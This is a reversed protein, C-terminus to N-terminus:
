EKDSKEFFSAHNKIVIDLNHKTKFIQFNRLRRESQVKQSGNMGHQLYCVAPTKITMLPYDAGTVRLSWDWDFYGDVARDFLGLKQHLHRPYVMSSTLITNNERLTEASTPFAFLKKDVERGKQKTVMWGYSHLLAEKTLGDSDTFSEVVRGLHEIDEWWDDDDHLAVLDGKAFTISTNRADVQAIGRNRYGKVRSDIDAEALERGRGDGDDTIIAEWNTYHQQKLYHLAKALREPRNKTAIIFSVLM